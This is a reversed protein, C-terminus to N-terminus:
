GLHVGNTNINVFHTNNSFSLSIATPSITISHEGGNYDLTILNGQIELFSSTGNTTTFKHIDSRQLNSSLVGGNIVRQLKEGNTNYMKLVSNSDTIKEKKLIDDAAPLNNIFELPLDKATEGAKVDGLILEYTYTSNRINGSSNSAGIYAYIRNKINASTFSFTDTIIDLNRAVIKIYDDLRTLFIQALKGCKALISGGGLVGFLSGGDSTFVMDKSSVDKPKGAGIQENNSYMSLNGSDVELAGSDVADPFTLDSEPRPISGLILYYGLSNTMIVRDGVVPCYSMAQRSSGGYPSLWTVNTLRQGTSERTKVMCSNRIPDVAIVTGEIFASSIPVPQSLISPTFM